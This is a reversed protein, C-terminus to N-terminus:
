SSRFSNPICVWSDGGETTLLTLNAEPCSTGTRPWISNVNEIAFCENLSFNKTKGLVFLIISPFENKLFLEMSSYGLSFRM